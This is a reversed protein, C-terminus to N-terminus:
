AGISAVMDRWNSTPQYGLVERAHSTDFISATPLQEFRAPNRLPPVTGYREKLMELTPRENLGDDATIFFTDHRVGKVELALRFGQSVDQPSVYTWLHYNNVDAGKSRIVPYEDPFMIHTPRIILVEMKGRNAYSRAIAETVEKSLSYAEIPRLPHTEDIPLSQPGWGPPNYLLGTTADSSAVVVRKVGADEAAQLVAWTGQVNVHFTTEQSTIRPNSVAALHVVADSGAFAQKLAAYDLISAAVFDVGPAADKTDVVRVQARDRMQDVFVRGLVGAGGTCVVKEFGM